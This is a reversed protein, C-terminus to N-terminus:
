CRVRLGDDDRLFEMSGDDYVVHLYSISYNRPEHCITDVVKPGTEPVEGSSCGVLMGASIVVAIWIQRM